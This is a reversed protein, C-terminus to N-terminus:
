RILGLERARALADERSAVGLKRYISRVQTKVTNHSVYLVDAIERVSLPSSLRGLVDRERRTLDAAGDQSSSTPLAAEGEGHARLASTLEALETHAKRALGDSAEIMARASRELERAEEVHGCALLVLGAQMEVFVREAPASGRAGLVLARRAEREARELDGRVLGIKALAIHPGCGHPFEGHREREAMAIAQDAWREAEDVDGIALAINALYGASVIAPVILHGQSALRVAHEFAERAEEHREENILRMGIALGAVSRWPSDPAFRGIDLRRSAQAATTSDGALEREIAHATLIAQEVDPFGDVRAGSTAARRSADIWEAAEPARGLSLETWVWAMCLRVDGEVQDRPLRRLWREVTALRGDGACLQWRELILDAAEEFAGADMLHSVAEDDFGNALLWRGARLHLDAIAPPELTAALEHRLLEGFLHHYRYWGRRDDLPVVFVNTRELTELVEGAAPDDTLAECLPGSLRALVSTRLLFGRQADALERLVEAGLYDVVMRHDGAFEEVFTTPDARGRLSLAALYLGAAWGETRDRLREANQTGLLPLEAALLAETESLSFRLQALRVEALEGRARMRALPLAPDVRTAIALHLRSPMHDLLFALDEDISPNGVVHYDDLVLVVQPADVRSLRNILEPLALERPAMGPVRLAALVEEEDGLDPAARRIGEIAYSWFRVPDADAPDLSLWAFSRGRPDSARWQSVLTTKGWGAPADVLTLKTGPSGLADLLEPRPVAGPRPEPAHLKTDLLVGGADAVQHM